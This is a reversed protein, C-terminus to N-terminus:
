REASRLGGSQCRARHGDPRRRARVGPAQRVFCMPEKVNFGNPTVHLRGINNTEDYYLTYPEDAKTLGHLQIAQKRMKNIDIM